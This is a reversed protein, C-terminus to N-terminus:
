LLERHRYLTQLRSCTGAPRSATSRGPQGRSIRLSCSPLQKDGETGSVWLFRPSWQWGLIRWQQGACPAQSPYPRLPAPWPSSPSDGRFSLLVVQFACLCGLWGQVGPDPEEPGVAPGPGPPRDPPLAGPGQLLSVPPELAPYPETKLVQPTETIHPSVTEALPLCPGGPQQKVPSGLHHLPLPDM